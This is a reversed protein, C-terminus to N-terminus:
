DAMLDDEDEEFSTESVSSEKGDIDEEVDSLNDTGSPSLTDDSQDSQSLNGQDDCHDFERLPSPFSLDNCAILENCSSTRIHDEHSVVEILPAVEQGYNLHSFTECAAALKAAYERLQDPHMLDAPNTNFLNHCGVRSYM